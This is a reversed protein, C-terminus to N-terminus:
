PDPAERRMLWHEPVQEAASLAAGRCSDVGSEKVIARENGPAPRWCPRAPGAPSLPAGAADDDPRAELGSQVVSRHPLEYAARSRAELRSM